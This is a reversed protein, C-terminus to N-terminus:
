RKAYGHEEIYTKMYSVSRFAGSGAMRYLRRYSGHELKKEERLAKLERRLPRITNIWRRKKGIKSTKKGKRSGHGRRRGMKKKEHLVRARARSVSIEPRKKIVGDRILKKIDGRTIAMSVRDKEEPNIWIRNVGCGLIDAAIRKQVKVNM